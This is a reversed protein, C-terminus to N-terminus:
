PILAKAVKRTVIRAAQRFDADLTEVTGLDPRQTAVFTLYRRWSTAALGRVSRRPHAIVDITSM